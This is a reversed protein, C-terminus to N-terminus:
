LRRRHAAAAASREGVLYTSNFPKEEATSGGTCNIPSPNLTLRLSIGRLLSSHTPTSYHLLRPYGTGCFSWSCYQIKPNSAKSNCEGIKWLVYAKYKSLVGLKTIREIFPSTCRRWGVLHRAQHHIPKSEAITSQTRGIRHRRGVLGTRLVLQDIATPIPVPIPNPQDIASGGLIRNGPTRPQNVM